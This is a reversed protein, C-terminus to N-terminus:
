DAPRFGFRKWVKIGEESSLRKAFAEATERDKIASLVVVPVLEATYWDEPIPVVSIKDKNVAVGSASIITADVDGNFVYLALQKVTAARM